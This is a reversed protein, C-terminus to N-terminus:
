SASFGRSFSERLLPCLPFLFLSAGYPPPPKFDIEKSEEPSFVRDHPGFWTRDQPDELPHDELGGVRFYGRIETLNKREPHILRYVAQEVM